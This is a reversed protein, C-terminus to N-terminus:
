LFRRLVAAIGERALWSGRISRVAKYFDQLM